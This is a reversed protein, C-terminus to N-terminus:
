FVFFRSHLAHLCNAQMIDRFDPVAIIMAIVNKFWLLCLLKLSYILLSNFGQPKFLACLLCPNTICSLAFTPHSFDVLM